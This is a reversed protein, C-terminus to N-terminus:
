RAGGGDRLVSRRELFEERGIEGRAYREELIGVAPSPSRGASHPRRRLLTVLLVILAIWFIPQILGIVWFWPFGGHWFHDALAGIV